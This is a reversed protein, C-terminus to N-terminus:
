GSQLDNDSLVRHHAVHAKTPHSRASFFPNLKLSGDMIKRLGLLFGQNKIPIEVGVTNKPKQKAGFYVPVIQPGEVTTPGKEFDM